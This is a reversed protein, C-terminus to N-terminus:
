LEESLGSSQNTLKALINVKARVAERLANAYIEKPFNLHMYFRPNLLFSQVYTEFTYVSLQSFVRIQVKEGELVPVSFGNEKPIKVLLYEGEEYGILSSYYVTKNAGSTLTLQLKIGIQLNMEKFSHELESESM